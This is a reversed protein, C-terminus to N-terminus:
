EQALLSERRSSLRLGNMLARGKDRVNGGTGEGWQQMSSNPGLVHVEPPCMGCCPSIPPALLNSYKEVCLKEQSFNKLGAFM